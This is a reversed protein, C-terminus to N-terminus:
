KGGLEKYYKTVGSVWYKNDGNDNIGVPCYISGIEEITTLGVDIYNYKLNSIYADIGDELTVLDKNKFINTLTSSNIDSLKIYINM